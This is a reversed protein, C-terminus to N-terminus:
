ARDAALEATADYVWSRDAGARDSLWTSPAASILTNFDWYDKWLSVRGDTVQHVSVVPLDVREGTPWICTERHEYIVNPGDALLLGGQNTYESLGDLGIRWRAVTNRPGKAALTPGIPMDLYLCDASLLSEVEAWDRRSMAAWLRRVAAAATSNNDSM